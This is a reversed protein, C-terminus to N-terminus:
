WVASAVSHNKWARCAVEHRRAISAVSGTQQGRQEVDDLMVHPCASRCRRPDRRRAAAWPAGPYWSVQISALTPSQTTVGRRPFATSTLASQYLASRSSSSHSSASRPRHRGLGDALVGRARGRANLARKQYAGAAIEVVHHVALVAVVGGAPRVLHQRDRQRM